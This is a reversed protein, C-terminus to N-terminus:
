VEVDVVKIYLCDNFIYKPVNSIAVRGCREVGDGDRVRRGNEVKIQLELNEGLEHPNIICVKVAARFPWKLLSDFEGQMVYIGIYYYPSVKTFRITLRYGKCHSYFHKSSWVKFATYLLPNEVVLDVPVVAMHSQMNGTQAKLNNLEVTLATITEQQKRHSRALCSIHEVLSDKIHDLMDKRRLKVECGAYSFDCKVVALPCDKHEHSKLDKRQLFKGCKNPCQVPHSGCIPWHNHIVDEYTSEYDNCYECSFPRKDCLENKHHILQNRRIFESCYSCTIDAFQCGDTENDKPNILNLHIDLQRLEGTWECGIEKKSCYVHFGYLPQQLGKNQYHDYSDTKCCPCPRCKVKARSICGQCFSKGCCTVQYPERLIQLCIPCETQLYKPPDEVFDCEFGAEIESLAM